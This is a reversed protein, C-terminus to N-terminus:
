LEQLGDSQIGLMRHAVCMLKGASLSLSDANGTRQCHIRGEDDAILRYRSQVYRNLRLNQVHKLIQLILQADRIEEDRMVKQNYLMDGVTNRNHVQSVHHLNRVRVLQHIMRNMRVRQGQKGCNRNRIRFRGSVTVPDNQLAIHWTRKM